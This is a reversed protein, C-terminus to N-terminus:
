RWFRQYWPSAGPQQNASSASSSGVSSSGVSSGSFASNGFPSNSRGAGATTGANDPPADSAMADPENDGWPVIGKVTGTVSRTWAGFRSPQEGGPSAGSSDPAASPSITASSLGGVPGAPMAPQSPTGFRAQAPVPAPRYQGQGPTAPQQSVRTDYGMEMRAPPPPADFSAPRNATGPWPQMAPANPPLAQVPPQMPRDIAAQRDVATEAPAPQYRLSDPYRLGGSSPTEIPRGYRDVPGSNPNTAAVGSAPPPPIPQTAIQTAAETAAQAAVATPDNGLNFNPPGDHAWRSVGPIVSRAQEAIGSPNQASGVLSQVAAVNNQVAQSGAAFQNQVGGATAELQSQVGAVNAGAQAAIQEAQQGIEGVHSQGKAVVAEAKAAAADVKQEAKALNENVAQEAKALPKEVAENLLAEGRAIQEDIAAVLLHEGAARLQHKYQAVLQDRDIRLKPSSWRGYAVADARMQQLQELGKNWTEPKLGALAKDSVVQLQFDRLELQMVLEFEKADAWGNGTLNITGGEIAVTSHAVKPHMLDALRHGQSAFRLEHRSQRQHLNMTAVIETQLQPAKIALQTPKGTLVPANSLNLIEITGQTGLGLEPALGKAGIREIWVSPERHGFGCRMQRLARYERPVDDAVIEPADGAIRSNVEALTEIKRLLEQLRATRSRLTEWDGLYDDLDISDGADSAHPEHGAIADFNPLTLGYPRARSQRAVDAKVDELLLRDVHMRGRLLPGPRLQAAVFGIRLRDRDPHNPDSIQLDQIELLGDALSLHIDGTNVESQNALSIAEVIGQEALGPAFCWGLTAAPLLLGLSLMVGKPRLWRTEVPVAVLEPQSADGFILWCAARVLLNSTPTAQAQYAAQLRAFRAQLFRTLRHMVLAAPLAMLMALVAGGVLAYRDLDFLIVLPQERLSAVWRGFFTQELLWRGLGFSLPTMMWSVMTGLAWAEGFVKTPVNLVLVGLLVVALTLNWGSVFGALLGLCVALAVERPHVGGRVIDVIAQFYRRMAGPLPNRGAATSDSRNGPLRQAAARPRLSPSCGAAQAPLMGIGGALASEIPEM